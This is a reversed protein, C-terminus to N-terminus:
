MSATGETDEVTLTIEPPSDQDSGSKLYGVEFMRGPGAEQVRQVSRANIWGYVVFKIIQIM